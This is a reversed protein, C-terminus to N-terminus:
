KKKRETTNFGVRRRDFNRTGRTYYHEVSRNSRTCRRRANIYLNTYSFFIIFIFDRTGSRLPSLLIIYLALARADPKYWTLPRTTGRDGYYYYYYHCFYPRACPRCSGFTVSSSDGGCRRRKRRLRWRM